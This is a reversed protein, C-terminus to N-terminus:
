NTKANSSKDETVPESLPSASTGCSSVSLALTPMKEDLADPTIDILIDGDVRTPSKSNAESVHLVYLGPRPVSADFGGREDSLWERLVSGSVGETLRLDVNSLPTQTRSRTRSGNQGIVELLRTRMLTGVLTRAKFVVQDPWKLTLGSQIAPSSGDPVATLEAAEGEVGAYKISIFYQGPVLNTIRANGNKDSKTSAVVKLPEAEDHLDMRSLEVEIGDLPAGNYSVTVTVSSGVTHEPLSMECAYGARALCGAVFFAVISREIARRRKSSAILRRM